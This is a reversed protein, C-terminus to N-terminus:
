PDAFASQCQDPLTQASPEGSRMVLIHVSSSQQLHVFVLSVQCGHHEGVGGGEAHKLFVDSFHAVQNVRVAALDIQVAGVHVGLHSLCLERDKLSQHDPTM